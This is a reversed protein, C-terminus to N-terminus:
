ARGISKWARSSNMQMEFAHMCWLSTPLIIATRRVSIWALEFVHSVGNGKLEHLSIVGYSSFNIYWQNSHVILKKDYPTLDKCSSLPLPTECTKSSAQILTRREAGRKAPLVYDHAEDKRRQIQCTTVRRGVIFTRLTFRLFYNSTM